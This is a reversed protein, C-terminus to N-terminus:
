QAQAPAVAQAEQQAKAHAEQAQTAAAKAAAAQTAAVEAAKAAAEGAAAAQESAALAHQAWHEASAPTAPSPVGTLVKAAPAAGPMTVTAAAEAQPAAGPPAFAVFQQQRPVPSPALPPLAGGPLPAPGPGPPPGMWWACGQAMPGPAQAPAMMSAVQSPLQPAAGPSPALFGASAAAFLGPSPALLKHLLTPAPAPAPAAYPSFGEFDFRAEIPMHAVFASIGSIAELKAEMKWSIRGQSAALKSCVAYLRAPEVVIGGQWRSWMPSPGPAPAPVPVGGNVQDLVLAPPAQMAEPAIMSRGDLYVTWLEVHLEWAVAERVEAEFRGLLIPSAVLAPYNLGAVTVAFRM